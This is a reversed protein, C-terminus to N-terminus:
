IKIVIIVVGFYCYIYIYISLSLSPSLSLSLLHNYIQNQKLNQSKCASGEQMLQLEESHLVSQHYHLM